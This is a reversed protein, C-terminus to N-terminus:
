PGSLSRQLALANDNGPFRAVLIEAQAMAEDIHGQDRLMTVLSWHIAFDTPFRSQADALVRVAANGEGLSNLAIAHVFVYRSNNPDLTVARQLEPLAAQQRDTRVLLLGLAHHLAAQDDDLTLGVRLIREADAERQQHRYLDALNVRAVVARPEKQLALRYFQEARESDTSERFLNGLNGLAEPREAIALQSDIYEREARRFNVQQPLPLLNRADSLASVAEIRVARLPDNLLFAAWEVRLEAPLGDLSRLAGIRLLPDGSSLERRVATMAERSFPQRLLTLATARAIGPFSDNDIAELLKENANAQGSRGAHIASGYHEPRDEGFWERIAADAWEAAREQHCNNCANPSGTELTLDPRPIRFSHDRRGDIVMYDRSAMHCDVCEVSGPEHRQHEATAFKAPLHCTSCVNSVAGSARLTVAHPDHCDSCSVGAEFMSSQLFSAYVYVEDQIQGDAHYLGEELLTPLHTDTLPLGFRYESDIISRRAHCRGCAEPQAPPRLRLESREAIGTDPNMVWVANESDDLDAQLGSDRLLTGAAAATVHLSAPGHCAECGLNVESWTTSFTDAQLDYNKQLNTSHCEACMYNWNQERGTWHLVDDHAIFEDPYLHFWRQGGQDARRSDWAISLAQLRGDPFEILYQQLPTVGFTYRIEFEQLEGAANETRVWYRGDRVFFQSSSDFYRFEADAFDGLVTDPGAHQMALDHHSGRWRRFETAHCDACTQSGVFEPVATAQPSTTQSSEGCAGTLLVFLAAM